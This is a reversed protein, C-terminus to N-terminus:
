GDVSAKEEQTNSDKPEESKSTKSYEEKLKKVEEETLGLVSIVKKELEDINGPAYGELRLLIEGKNTILINVPSFKVNYIQSVKLGPDLLVPFDWKQSAVMPAVRPITLETDRSVLLLKLGVPEYTKYLRVIEPMEKQCPKCNVEWFNLLILKADKAVAKLEYTKGDVGTLKFNGAKEASNSATTCVLFAFISSLLFSQLRWIKRM